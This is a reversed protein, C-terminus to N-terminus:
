KTYGSIPTASIATPAIQEAGSGCRIGIRIVRVGVADNTQAAANGAGQTIKDAATPTATARITVRYGRADPRCFAIWFVLMSM